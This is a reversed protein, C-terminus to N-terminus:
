KFEGKLIDNLIIILGAYFLVSRKGNKDIKYPMLRLWHIIEHFYISKVQEKSFKEYLFCKYKEYLEDYIYSKTQLYNINNQYIDVGNTKMLFEYGGHLSQLLKAYDLNPSDHVNGTNPDIIYFNNKKKNNLCIINEITFDGHIDSCVDNKFIDLLFEKTLYKKFYKLNHYKKGNINLYDYKLLPKIYQGNEIKQINKIVKSDIYKELNNINSSSVNKSHLDKNIAELSCRIVNWGDELPSSHVYNFCGIAEKLYPMDYSCYGSGHKVNFIKTVPLDKSHKEIWKIQEFLKDSDNGFSYKRFFTSEGDTCLMTTANSGASYDQIISIDRNLKLYSKFYDKKDASFYNELFKLRDSPNIHPLMELYGVNKSNDSKGHKKLLSLIILLILPLTLYLFVIFNDGLLPTQGSTSLDFSNKSFLTTFVDVVGIDNGIRQMFLSFLIYSLSYLIWMCLTNILMRKKNIKQIMDKLSSIICWSFKLIKLEIKENFIGAVKKICIKIYKNYNYGIVLLLLLLIVGIVYFWISSLIINNKFGILYLLIFIISVVFIDLIRDIVITALSFSVGNKMKRGAYWARFLEDLRFPLFFNIIYGFSLAQLLSEEDPKEYIEIFQKLRYTKFYHAFVLAIIALVLIIINM